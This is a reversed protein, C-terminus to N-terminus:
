FWGMLSVSSELSGEVEDPLNPFFDLGTIKELEDISIAYSRPSLYSERHPLLFAIAKAGPPSTDLIVKFYQRPVSVRNPGIKRLNEELIPGSVVYVHGEQRAWKRVQQELESWIGANFEHVQPSMNSMFFSESMASASFRFDAAPALHGRDYGSDRYDELEASGTRVAPDPRFDDARETEGQTEHSELKYAVWQAQEHAENYLLTYHSHRVLAPDEPQHAPLAMKEDEPLDSVRLGTSTPLDAQQLVPMQAQLYGWARGLWGGTQQDLAYLLGSYHALM